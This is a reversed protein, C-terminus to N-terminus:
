EIKEYFLVMMVGAASVLSHPAMSSMLFEEKGSIDLQGGFAM